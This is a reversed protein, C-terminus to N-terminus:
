APRANLAWAAHVASMFRWQRQEPPPPLVHDSTNSPLQDGQDSRAGTLDTATTTTTM